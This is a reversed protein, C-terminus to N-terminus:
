RAVVGYIAAAIAGLVLVAVVAFDFVDLADVITKLLDKLAQRSKM